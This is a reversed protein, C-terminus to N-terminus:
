SADASSNLHGADASRTDNAEGRRRVSDARPHLNSILAEVAVVDPAQVLTAVIRAAAALPLEASPPGNNSIAVIGCRRMKGWGLSINPPIKTTESGFGAPVM